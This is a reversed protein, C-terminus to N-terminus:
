QCCNLCVIWEKQEKSLGSGGDERKMELFLLRLLPIASANKDKYVILLDPLGKRLGMQVQKKAAQMSKFKQGEIYTGAFTNNPIATYKVVHGTEILRDLHKIVRQQALDESEIPDLGDEIRKLDAKSLGRRGKKQIATYQSPTINM